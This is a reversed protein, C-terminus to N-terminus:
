LSETHKGTIGLMKRWSSAGKAPDQLYCEHLSLLELDTRLSGLTVMLDRVHPWDPQDQELERGIEAQYHAILGTLSSFQGGGEFSSRSGTTWVVPAAVRAFSPIDKMRRVEGFFVGAVFFIVALSGAAAPVLLWGLHFRRHPLDPCFPLPLGPGETIFRDQERYDRLVERCDPREDLDKLFRDRDDPGLEGDLFRSVREEMDEYMDEGNM